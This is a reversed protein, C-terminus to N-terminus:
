YLERLTGENNQVGTQSTKLYSGLNLCDIKEERRFTDKKKIDDYCVHYFNPFFSDMIKAFCFFYVFEKTNIM